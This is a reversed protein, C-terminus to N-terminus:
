GATLYSHVDYVTIAPPGPIGVEMTVPGIQDRSFAEFQERTQWVDTVRVGDPTATSWHFLGGAAGPGGPTFHMKEIVQDYQELTGGTFDMVVAIAM